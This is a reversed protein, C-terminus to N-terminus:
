EAHKLGLDALCRDLSAAAEHRVAGDQCAAVLAAYEARSPAKGSILRGARWKV